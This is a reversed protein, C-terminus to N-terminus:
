VGKFNFNDFFQKCYKMELFYNHNHHTEHPMELKRTRKKIDYFTPTEKWDFGYVDVKDPFYKEVHNLVRLGTSPAYNEVEDDYLENLNKRLEIIESNEICDFRFPHEVKNKSKSNMQILYEVKEYNKNLPSKMTDAFSFAWIDTKTGHTLDLNPYTDKFCISASRNIRIVVDHSDIDSGHKMNFLSQSNGVVAVTKNDLWSKM